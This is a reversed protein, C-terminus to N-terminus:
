LLMARMGGSSTALRRASNSLTFCTASLWRLCAPTAQSSTVSVMDDQTARPLEWSSAFSRAFRDPLTKPPPTLDKAANLVVSLSLHALWEGPHFDEIERANQGAGVARVLERQQASIDYFDFRAFAVVHTVAVAGIGPLLAAQGGGPDRDIRALARDRHIEFLGLRDLGDLAQRGLGVHHHLIEPRAHHIAKADAVVRQALDIWPQDIARHRAEAADARQGPRRREVAHDLRHGPQHRDGAELGVARRAHAEGAGVHHRPRRSGETDGRRQELAGM